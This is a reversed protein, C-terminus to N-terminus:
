KPCGNMAAIASGNMTVNAAMTKGACRPFMSGGLHVSRRRCMHTPRASTIPASHPEAPSGNQPIANHSTMSPRAPLRYEGSSAGHGAAWSPQSAARSRPSIGSNTSAAATLDSTLQHEREEIDVADRLDEKRVVAGVLHDHVLAAGEAPVLDFRVHDVDKATYEAPAVALDLDLPAGHVLVHPVLVTPELRDFHRLESRSRITLRAAAKMAGVTRVSKRHRSTMTAEMSTHEHQRTRSSSFRLFKGREATLIAYSCTPKRSRKTSPRPM